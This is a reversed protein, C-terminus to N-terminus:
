RKVFRTRRMLADFYVNDTDVAFREMGFRNRAARRANEGMERRFTPNQILGLLCDALSKPNHSPVLFGTEGTSVMEPLCGVATAVVPRGVSMWELCVRSLAESGISCIVGAHCSRMFARIDPQRGLFRFWHAVGCKEAFRQLGGMTTNKAEGVILFEEEKLHEKLRAVAEIFYTQGKIPDLRGVLAFRLPGEPEAPVDQEEMGPYVTHLRGELGPFLTKYQHTIARSAGIVADTRNLLWAQGPKRDVPRADGRTRVLAAPRGAVAWLGLTHGSGTHANVVDFKRRGLFWRFGLFSTLAHVPIGRRRAERDAYLGPKVAAWVDHGRARQAQALSLGYATM